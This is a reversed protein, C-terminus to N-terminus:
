NAPSSDRLRRINERIRDADPYESHHRLFSELEQIAAVKNGRRLHIQALVLQPNSFHGPDLRTSERLYRFAEDFREMAFYTMGLQSNALADRPRMEIASKNLALAEDFKDLHLLVGGLNLVPEYLQKDQKIAERFNKEAAEYDKKQYALTGLSNWAVSFQPAMAVANAFHAEASEPDKKTLRKQGEFFEKWAKDPISLRTASVTFRDKPTYLRSARSPHLRVTIKVRGKEDSNSPGVSHTQRFEGIRPLYVVTSYQGPPLNKFKFKGDLYITNSAYYNLGVGSITVNAFRPVPALKGELTYTRRETNNQASLCVVLASAVVLRRLYLLLSM